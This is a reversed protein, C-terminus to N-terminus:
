ADVNGYTIVGSGSVQVQQATAGPLFEIHLPASPAGLQMTGALQATHDVVLTGTTLKLGAASGSAKFIGGNLQLIASRNVMSFSPYQVSSITITHPALHAYTVKNEIIFRAGASITVMGTAYNTLTPMTAGSSLIRVTNKITVALLAAADSTSLTADGSLVIDVNELTLTSAATTIDGAIGFKNGSVNILRGNRITLAINSYAGVFLAADVHSLDLDHGKLDLIFTEDNDSAGFTWAGQLVCDDLLELITPSSTGSWTVAKFPDAEDLTAVATRPFYVSGLTNELITRSFVLSGRTGSSGPSNLTLHNADCNVVRMNKITITKSDAIALIGDYTGTGLTLTYGRGDLTGANSADTSTCVFYGDVLTLDNGFILTKNNTDITAIYTAASPTSSTTILSAESGLVLNRLLKLTGSYCNAPTPDYHFGFDIAGHVPIALDVSLNIDGAGGVLNSCDLKFGDLFYIIGNAENNVDTSFYYPATYLLPAEIGDLTEGCLTGGFVLAGIVAM